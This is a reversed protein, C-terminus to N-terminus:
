RNEVDLAMRGADTIRYSGRGVVTIWKKSLLQSTAMHVTGLVIHPHRPKLAKELGKATTDGNERLSQLILCQAVTMASLM